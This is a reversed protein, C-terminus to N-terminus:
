KHAAVTLETVCSPLQNTSVKYGMVKGFTDTLESIKHLGQPRRHISDVDDCSHYKTVEKRNM